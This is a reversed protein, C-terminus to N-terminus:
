ANKPHKDRTAEDFKILLHELESTKRSVDNAAAGSYVADDLVKAFSSIGRVAEEEIDLDMLRQELEIPTLTEAQLALRENLYRFLCSRFSDLSSSHTDPSRLMQLARALAGEFRRSQSDAEFAMKRRLVYYWGIGLLPALVLLAITLWANIRVQGRAVEDVRKQPRLDLSLVEIDQKQKSNQKELEVAADPTVGAVNLNEKESPLVRIVKKPTELWQYEKLGPDFYLIRFQPLEFDGAATPILAMRFTKTFELKDRNIKTTLVAEEDYRKYRKTEEEPIDLPRLNATGSLELTYLVSEGLRLERSDIQSSMQLTGVPIYKQETKPPAPLSKVKLQLAEATLRFERARRIPPFLDTFLSNNPYRGRRGRTGVVLQANLTRKPITIEGAKSPILVEVFSHITTSGARRTVPRETTIRERWFNTLEFDELNGGQFRSDAAVEARYTIQEGVYPQYNSVAQIFAVDTNGSKQQPKNETKSISLFPGTFPLKKAGIAVRGDPLRYKGPSLKQKLKVLFRLTLTSTVETNLISRRVEQGIKQLEFLRSDDFDVAGIPTKGDSTISLEIQFPTDIPGSKPSLELSVEQAWAPVVLLLYIFTFTLFSRM